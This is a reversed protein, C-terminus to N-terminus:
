PPGLAVFGKTRSRGAILPRVRGLLAALFDDPRNMAVFHHCDEFRVLENHPAIINGSYEEILEIQALLDETGQFFFMPIDFRLGLAPLDVEAIEKYLQGGSFIFGRTLSDVDDATFDPSRPNPRPQIRDGDGTALSDAWRVLVRMTELEAHPPPGMATLSEIAERNQAAKARALVKAYKIEENRKMDVVQGTGVYAAFLDPRRRIMHIGLISGWSHAVLLIKDARLHARLYAAVEIGDEVMRDISLTGSGAEGNRAFTRGAGRQDWHVVTFHREWGKWAAAAVRSSAGPGGHLYLLVPNDLNEGGIQIWQEIGGIPVYM